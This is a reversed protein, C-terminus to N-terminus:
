HMLEVQVSLGIQDTIRQAAADNPHLVLGTEKM